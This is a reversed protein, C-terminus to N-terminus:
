PQDPVLPLAGGGVEDWIRIKHTPERMFGLSVVVGIAAVAMPCFLGSL